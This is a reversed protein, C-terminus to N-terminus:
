RQEFPDPGPRLHPAAPRARMPRAMCFYRTEDYIHDEAGSDVDEVAHASYPLAPVTRIFDRCTSFVYLKAKGEPDFRLREHLEMKGPLRANEGPRFYVGSHGHSPEMLMAVSDGRSRDFIAPDAIRDIRINEQREERERELDARSRYPTRGGYEGEGHGFPDLPERVSEVEPVEEEFEMDMEDEEGRIFRNSKETLWKGIKAFIGM